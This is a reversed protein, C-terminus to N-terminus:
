MTMFVVPSYKTPLRVFVTFAYFPNIVLARALFTARPHFNIQIHTSTSLNMKFHVCFHTLYVFSSDWPITDLTLETPLAAPQLAFSFSVGEAANLVRHTLHEFWRSQVLGEDYLPKNDKATVLLFLSWTMQTRNEAFSDVKVRTDRTYFNSWLRGFSGRAAWMLM